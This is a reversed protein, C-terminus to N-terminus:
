EDKAFRRMAGEVFQRATHRSEDWAINYSFGFWSDGAIAEPNVNRPDVSGPTKPKHKVLLRPKPQTADLVVLAETVAPVCGRPFEVGGLKLLIRGGDETYLM